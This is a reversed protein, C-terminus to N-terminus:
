ASSGQPPPALDARTDFNDLIERHEVSLSLLPEARTRLHRLSQAPSEIHAPLERGLIIPHGHRPAAAPQPSHCPALWGRAPSRAKLWTDLLAAFVPAPVLPCDVPALCLDRGPYVSAALQVSGTRGAAWNANTAIRHAPLDPTACLFARIEADHHGTVILSEGCCSGARLLHELSTRGHLELLAKCSGMRRSAGAALIVLVPLAGPPQPAM